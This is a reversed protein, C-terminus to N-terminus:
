KTPNIMKVAEIQIATFVEPNHLVMFTPFHWKKPSRSEDALEDMTLWKISQVETKNPKPKVNNHCLFLFVTLDRDRTRIKFKHEVTLESKNVSLEEALERYACALESEGAEVGGGPFNWLNPNNSNKSRKAILIKGKRNVLISWVSHKIEESTFIPMPM